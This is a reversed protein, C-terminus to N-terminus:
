CTPLIVLVNTTTPHHLYLQKYVYRFDKGLQQVSLGPTVASMKRQRPAHDTGEAGSSALSMRESIDKKNPNVLLKLNHFANAMSTKRTAPNRRKVTTSEDDSHTSHTHVLARNTLEKTVTTPQNQTDPEADKGRNKRTTLVDGKWAQQRYLEHTYTHSYTHTRTHTHTHTRTHTKFDTM